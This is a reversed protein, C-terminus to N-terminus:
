YSEFNTVKFKGNEIKKKKLVRGKDIETCREM